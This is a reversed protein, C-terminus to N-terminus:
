RSSSAAYYTTARKQGKKTLRRDALAMSVTKTATRTDWRLQAQIQEARLGPRSSLLGTLAPVESAGHVASGNRRSVPITPSSSSEMLESVSAVRIAALVNKAFDAALSELTTTLSM